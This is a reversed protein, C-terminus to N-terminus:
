RLFIISIVKFIDLLTKLHLIMVLPKLILIM